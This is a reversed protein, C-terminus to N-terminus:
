PRPQFVGPSTHALAFLNQELMDEYEEPRLDDREFVCLLKAAFGHENDALSWRFQKQTARKRCAPDLEDHPRLLGHDDVAVRARERLADMMVEVITDRKAHVIPTLNALQLTFADWGSKYPLGSGMKSFSKQGRYGPFTSPNWTILPRLLLEFRQSVADASKTIRSIPYYGFDEDELRLALRLRNGVGTVDDVSPKYSIRVGDYRGQLHLNNDRAALAKITRLIKAILTQPDITSKFATADGERWAATHSLKGAADMELGLAAMAKEVYVRAAPSAMGRDLQNMVIRHRANIANILATTKNAWWFKESQDMSQWANVMLAAADEMSHAEAAARDAWSSAYYLFLTQGDASFKGALGTFLWDNVENSPLAAMLSCYDDISYHQEAAHASSESTADWFVDARGPSPTVGFAKSSAPSGPSNLSKPTLPQFDSPQDHDSGPLEEDLLSIRDAKFNNYTEQDFPVTNGALLNETQRAWYHQQQVNLKGWRIGSEFEAEGISVLMTNHSVQATKAAHYRFLTTGDTKLFRRDLLAQASGPRAARDTSRLRDLNGAVASAM